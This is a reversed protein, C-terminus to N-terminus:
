YRYQGVLLVSPKAELEAELIEPFHFKHFSYQTEIPLIRNVYLDRLEHVVKAQVNNSVDSDSNSSDKKVVIPKTKSM